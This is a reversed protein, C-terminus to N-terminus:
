RFSDQLGFRGHSVGEDRLPESLVGAACLCAGVVPSLRQKGTGACDYPAINKSLALRGYYLRTVSSDSAAAFFVRRVDSGQNQTQIGGPM